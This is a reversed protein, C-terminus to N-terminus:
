PKIYRKLCINCAFSKGIDDDNNDVWKGCTKECIIIARKGKGHWYDCFVTCRNCSWNKCIYCKYLYNDADYDGKNNVDVSDNCHICNVMKKM